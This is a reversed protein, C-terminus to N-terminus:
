KLLEDYTTELVDRITRLQLAHIHQIGRVIKVLAERTLPVNKLQILAVMETQRIAKEKRIKRINWEIFIEDQEIKQEM